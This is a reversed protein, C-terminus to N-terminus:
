QDIGATLGHGPREAGEGGAEVLKGVCRDGRGVVLRDEAEVGLPEPTLVLAPQVDIRQQGGRVRGPVQLGAVRHREGVPLLRDADVVDAVAADPRRGVGAVVPVEPLDDVPHSEAVGEQDVGLAGHDIAGELTHLQPGVNQTRAATRDAGGVVGATRGRRHAVTKAPAGVPLQRRRRGVIKMSTARKAIM